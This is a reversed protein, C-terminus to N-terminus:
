LQKNTGIKKEKILSILWGYMIGHKYRKGKVSFLDLWRKVAEWGVM